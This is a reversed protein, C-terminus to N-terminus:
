DHAEDRDREHREERGVGDRSVGTPRDEALLGGLLLDRLEAFLLTEILGDDLAVERPEAAYQFAIEARRDGAAL